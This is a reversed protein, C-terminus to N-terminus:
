FRDRGDGDIRPPPVPAAEVNPAAPAPPIVAPPTIVQPPINGPQTEIRVESTKPPAPTKGPPQPMKDLKEITGPAGYVGPGGIAGGGCANGQCGSSCGTDCCGNHRQFM